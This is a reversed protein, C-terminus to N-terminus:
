GADADGRNRGTVDDVIRDIEEKSMPVAPAEDFLKELEADTLARGSADEALRRALLVDEIEQDVDDTVDNGEYAHLMCSAAWAKFAPSAQGSELHCIVGKEFHDIDFSM